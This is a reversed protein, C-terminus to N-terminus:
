REDPELAIPVEFTLRLRGDGDVDVECRGHFSVLFARLTLARDALHRDGAGRECSLEFLVHDGDSRSTLLLEGGAGAHSAALALARQVAHALQGPACAVAPLVAALRRRVVLPFGVQQLLADVCREVIPNLDARGDGGTDVSDLISAVLAQLKAAEDELHHALEAPDAITEGHVLQLAQQDIRGLCRGLLGQLRHLDRQRRM